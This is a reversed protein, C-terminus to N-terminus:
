RRMLRAKAASVSQRLVSAADQVTSQVVFTTQEVATKTDGAKVAHVTRVIAGRRENCRCGM